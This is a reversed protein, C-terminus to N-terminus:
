WWCSNENGNRDDMNTSTVGKSVVKAIICVELSSPMTRLAVYLGEIVQFMDLAALASSDAVEDQDENEDDVEANSDEDRFVGYTPKFKCEFTLDDDIDLM